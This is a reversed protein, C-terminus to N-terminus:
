VIRAVTCHELDIESIPADFFLYFYSCCLVIFFSCHFPFICRFLAFFQCKESEASNGFIKLQQCFLNFFNEPFVGALAQWFPLNHM